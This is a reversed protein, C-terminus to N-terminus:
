PANAQKGAGNMPWNEWPQTQKVSQSMMMGSNMKMHPAAIGNASPRRRRSPRPTKQRRTRERTASRQAIPPRTCPFQASNLGPVKLGNAFVSWDM